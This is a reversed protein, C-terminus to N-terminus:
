TLFGFSPLRARRAAYFREIDMIRVQKGLKPQHRVAQIGVYGRVTLPVDIQLHTINAGLISLVISLGHALHEIDIPHEHGQFIRHIGRGCSGGPDCELM